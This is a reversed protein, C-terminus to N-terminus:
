RKPANFQRIVWEVNKLYSAQEFLTCYQQYTRNCYINLKKSGIRDIIIEFGGYESIIKEFIGMHLVKNM